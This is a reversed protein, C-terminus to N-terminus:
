LMSLIKRSDKIDALTLQNEATKVPIFFPINSINIFNSNIPKNSVDFTGFRESNIEIINYCYTINENIDFSMSISVGDVIGYLKTKENKVIDSVNFKFDQELIDKKIKSIKSKTKRLDKYDFYIFSLNDGSIEIFVMYYIESKEKVKLEVLERINKETLQFDFIEEAIEYYLKKNNKAELYIKNLLSDDFVKDIQVFHTVIEFTYTKNQVIEKKLDYILNNKSEFLLNKIKQPVVM